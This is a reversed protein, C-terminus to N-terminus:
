PLAHDSQSTVVRNAWSCETPFSAFFSSLSAASTSGSQMRTNAACTFSALSLRRAASFACCAAAPTPLPLTSGFATARPLSASGGVHRVPQIADEDDRLVMRARMAPLATELTVHFSDACIPHM